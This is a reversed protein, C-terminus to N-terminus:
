SVYFDKVVGNGAIGQAVSEREQGYANTISVGVKIFYTGDGQPEENILNMYWHCEFGYPYLAGGYDEFNQRAEWRQDWENPESEERLGEESEPERIEPRNYSISVTTGFDYEDGEEFGLTLFLTRAGVATVAWDGYADDHLRAPTCEVTFGAQELQTRVDEYNQGLFSDSSAPAKLKAPTHINIAVEDDPFLVDGAAFSDSGRVTVSAVTGDEGARDLSLDGLENVAVNDFGAGRFADEVEQRSKGEIEDSGIPVAVTELREVYIQDDGIDINFGVASLETTNFTASGTRGVGETDKVSFSHERDTLELDYSGDEGHPLTGIAQGDISVEVDYKDFFWNSEFEVFLRVAHRPADPDDVPIGPEGHDIDTAGASFSLMENVSDSSDDNRALTSPIIFAWMLVLVIGVIVILAFESWDTGGSKKNSGAKDSSPGEGEMAAKDKAEATEGIQSTVALSNRKVSGGMKELGTEGSSDQTRGNKEAKAGKPKSPKDACKEPVDDDITEVKAGCYKCFLSDDAIEKGCKTCYMVAGM